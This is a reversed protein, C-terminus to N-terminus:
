ERVHKAAARLLAERSQSVSLERSIAYLSATRRERDRASDAQARIRTTLHSIVVAVVFMVAFTVIHRLDSVAFSFYPAVFFFDFAVVSLIAAFVSPGYGFRMSVIVVGLLLVMVVDALESRGFAFWAVLTSAVVVLLGALYGSFAQAGRSGNLPRPSRTTGES